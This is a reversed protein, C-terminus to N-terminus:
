NMSLQSIVFGYDPTEIPKLSYIYNLIECYSPPSDTCIGGKSRDMATKPNFGYRKEVYFKYDGDVLYRLAVMIQMLDNKMYIPAPAPDRLSQADGFDIVVSDDLMFSWLDTVNHNQAVVNLFHLDMHAYGSAHIAPDNTV